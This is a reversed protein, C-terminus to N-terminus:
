KRIISKNMWKNNQWRFLMMIARVCEDLAQALFIGLFGLKLWIGLVWSGLSSFIFMSIIAGILPFVVDGSAKLSNIFILNICRGTEYIFMYSLISTAYNIVSQYDEQDKVILYIIDEGFLNLLIIVMLLIPFCLLYSQYTRKKAQLYKGEGVDHGVLIANAQGFAVSFQYIYTMILNIYSRALMEAKTLQNVAATVFLGSITYCFSELASPLGILLVKKLHYFSFKLSYIKDKLLIPAAVLALILTIIQSVLTAIAAGKIGLPPIGLKGFILIYNLIVNLINSIVAIVTMFAPKQNSRLNAAIINVIASCPMGFSVISLYLMADNIYEEPCDILQLLYKQSILLITMLVLSLCFNFIIGNNFAKKADDKQKAGLYQSIVIGVGTSCIMLLVNLMNIVTSANNMALVYNENYSNIMLVDISNLLNFLFLQIFIPIGLSLISAKKEKM